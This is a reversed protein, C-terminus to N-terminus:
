AVASSHAAAMDRLVNNELVDDDHLKQLVDKISLVARVKEEEVVVLHRIRHKGMLKLSQTLAMDVDCTVVHSSMVDGVTLGELYGDNKALAHLVDHDTLIGLLRANESLVVLGNLDRESMAKVADVLPLSVSTNVCREKERNVIARVTM